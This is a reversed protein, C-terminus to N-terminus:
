RISNISSIGLGVVQSTFRGTFLPIPCRAVPAPNRGDVTHNTKESKKGGPFEPFRRKHHGFGPSKGPVDNIEVTRFASTKFMITEKNMGFQTGQFDDSLM